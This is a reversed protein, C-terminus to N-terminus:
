VITIEFTALEADQVRQLGEIYPEEGFLRDEWQQKWHKTRKENEDGERGRDSTVLYEFYGVRSFKTCGPNSLHLLLGYFKTKRGFYEIRSALPLCYFDVISAKKDDFRILAAETEGWDLTTNQPPGRQMDNFKFKRLCGRIKVKGSEEVCDKQNHIKTEAHVIKAIRVGIDQWHLFNVAGDVSAWSWSPARSGGPRTACETGPVYWMLQDEMRGELIGAFYKGLKLTRGFTKALGSLAILKDMGNTLACRSYIQVLSTWQVVSTISSGDYRELSFNHEWAPKLGGHPWMESCSFQQICEWHIQHDFHIKRRSLFREQVVWGRRQLPFTSLQCDRLQEITLLIFDNREDDYLPSPKVAKLKDSGYARSWSLREVRCPKFLLPDRETYLGDGGEAAASAAITVVSNRYVDGMRSSEHLWDDQSDQIICLSDIWIYCLGIRLTFKMADQFTRSLTEFSIGNKFGEVGDKRLTVVPNDAWRHSLTVYEAGSDIEAGECLRPPWPDLCILRSPTFSHRDSTRCKDHDRLCEELKQRASQFSRESATNCEIM